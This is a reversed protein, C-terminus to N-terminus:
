AKKSNTQRKAYNASLNSIASLVYKDCDLQKESANKINTGELENFPLIKPMRFIKAPILKDAKVICQQPDVAAFVLVKTQLFGPNKGFFVKGYGSLSKVIRNMYLGQMFSFFSQIIWVMGFFILLNWVM